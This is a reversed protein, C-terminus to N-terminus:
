TCSPAYSVSTVGFGRMATTPVRNTFAVYGNFSLNPITPATHHFAHKTLGYSSFRTHRRRRPPDADQTRPDLRREVADAIEMHWPARASSALFEERTWRWKVPRQAKM